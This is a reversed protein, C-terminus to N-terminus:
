RSALWALATPEDDFLAVDERGSTQLGLVLVRWFPSLTQIACGPHVSRAHHMLEFANEAPGRFVVQAAL